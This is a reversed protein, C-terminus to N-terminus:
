KITKFLKEMSFSLEGDEVMPWAFGNGYAEFIKMGYREKLEFLDISNLNVCFVEKATWNLPDGGIKQNFVVYELGDIEQYECNDIDRKPINNHHHHQIGLKVNACFIQSKDDNELRRKIEVGDIAFEEGCAYKNGLMAAPYMSVVDVMAMRIGKIHRRGNLAQSRGAILCSRVFKDIFIEKAAPHNILWHQGYLAKNLKWAASGITLNNLPNIITMCNKVQELPSMKKSHSGGKKVPVIKNRNYLVIAHIEQAMDVNVLTNMVRRSLERCAFVDHSNYEDLNQRNDDIWQMLSKEGGNDYYRQPICHDFGEVKQVSSKFDKCNQKLSGTTM